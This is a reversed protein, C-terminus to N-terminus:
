EVRNNTLCFFARDPRYGVCFETLGEKGGVVNQYRLCGHIIVGGPGKLANTQAETLPFPPTLPLHEDPQIPGHAATENGSPCGPFKRAPMDGGPWVDFEQTSRMGVAPTKGANVFDVSPQEHDPIHKTPILWARTSAVAADASLKSARATEQSICGQWVSIITYIITFVALIGSFVDQKTWGDFFRNKTAQSNEQEQGTKGASDVSTIQDTTVRHSPAKEQEEDSKKEDM